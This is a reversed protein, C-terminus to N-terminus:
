KRKCDANLKKRVERVESRGCVEVDYFEAQGSTNVGEIKCDFCADDSCSTLLILSAFLIKKM